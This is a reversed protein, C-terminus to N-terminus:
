IFQIAIIGYKKEKEKSYFERYVSVGDNIDTITPLCRELKEKQLYEKFNGYHNIKIIRKKTFRTFGLTDNSFIIIDGVKMKTFKKKALRGEVTKNGCYILSFWPDQVNLKFKSM